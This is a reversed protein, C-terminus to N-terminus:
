QTQNAADTVLGFPTGYEIYDNESVIMGPDVSCAARAIGIKKSEIDFIFDNQRMLTSGFLIENGSGKDAALCYKDGAKELYLYESPFWQIKKIEGSQTRAFINVIPYGMFFEKTRNAFREADFNFCVLSEGDIRTLFPRSPCYKSDSSSDPNTQNCHYSFHYVLSDWLGHPLYSFTTGSDVFGINYASSGAMPHENVAVGTLKFRYGNGTHQMPFWSISDLHSDTNYGGIGFSGGNKGLCLTFMKKNIIEAEYM